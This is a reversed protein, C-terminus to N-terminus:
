DLAPRPTRWHRLLAQNWTRATLALHRAREEVDLTTGSLRAHVARREPPSAARYAVERWLPHAFNLRDGHWSVIGDAEAEALDRAPHDVGAERLTTARPDATASAVLLAARAPTSLGLLRSRMGAGLDSPLSLLEGTTARALERAFLPNGESMAVIRQLAPRDLVHGSQALIQHLPALQLGELRMIEGAQEAGVVGRLPLDHGERLTLVLAYPARCRRVAFTLARLSPEDLWQM